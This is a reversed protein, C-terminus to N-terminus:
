NKKIPTKWLTFKPDGSDSCHKGFHLIQTDGLSASDAKTISALLRCTLGAKWIIKMGILM